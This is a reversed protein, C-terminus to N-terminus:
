HIPHEAVYQKWAAPMIDTQDVCPRIRTLCSLNLQMLRHIDGPDAYRTFHVYGLICIECGSPRSILYNPHLTLQLRDRDWTRASFDIQPVSRTDAMLSYEIWRDQSFEPIDHWYTEISVAFEKSWVVGDRMGVIAVIRAPRGGMLMYGPLLVTQAMRAFPGQNYSLRLRWRLYDDLRVFLPRPVFLWAPETLKIEKSCETQNCRDDLGTERAWGKLQRQADQWSTKGLELSQIQALLLETRRRFIHQGVQSAVLVLILVACVGIAAILLTKQLFRIVM